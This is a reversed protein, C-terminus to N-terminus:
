EFPSGTRPTYCTAHRQGHRHRLRLSSPVASLASSLRYRPRGPGEEADSPCQLQIASVARGAIRRKRGVMSPDHWARRAEEGVRRYKRQDQMHTRTDGDHGTLKRAPQPQQSTAKASTLSCCHSMPFSQAARSKFLIHVQSPWHGSHSDHGAKDPGIGTQKSYNAAQLLQTSRAAILALPRSPRLLLYFEITLKISEPALCSGLWHGKGATQAPEAGM